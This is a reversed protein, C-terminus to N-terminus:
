PRGAVPGEVGQRGREIGSFEIWSQQVADGARALGEHVDLEYCLRQGCPAPRDDQHWFDGESPLHHPAELLVEALCDGDEVALERGSLAVVSPTTQAAALLANSM